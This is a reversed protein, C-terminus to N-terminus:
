SPSGAPRYWGAVPGPSGDAAAYWAESPEGGYGPTLRVKLLSLSMPPEGHPDDAAAAAASVAHCARIVEDDAADVRQIQMSM